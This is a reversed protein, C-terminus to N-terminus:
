RSRWAALADQRASDPDPSVALALVLRGESRGYLIATAARKGTAAAAIEVLLGHGGDAAFRAVETTTKPRPKAKAQSPDRSAPRSFARALRAPDAALAQEMADARKGEFSLLAAFGQRACSDRPCLSMARASVGDNLVWAKIPLPRWGADYSLAAIPAGWHNSCGAILLGALAAAVAFTRM